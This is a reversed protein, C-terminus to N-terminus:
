SCLGVLPQVGMVVHADFEPRNLSVQTLQFENLESRGRSLAAMSYCTLFYPSGNITAFIERKRTSLSNVYEWQSYM